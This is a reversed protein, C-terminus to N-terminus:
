KKTRQSHDNEQQLLIIIKAYKLVLFPLYGAHWNYFGNSARCFTRPRWQDGKEMATFLYNLLLHGVTATPFFAERRNVM